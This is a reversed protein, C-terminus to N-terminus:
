KFDPGLTGALGAADIAKQLDSFQPNAKIAPLPALTHLPPADPDPHAHAAPRGFRRGGRGGEGNYVTDAVTQGPEVMRAAGPSPAVGGPAEAFYFPSPSPAAAEEYRREVLAQLLPTPSPAAQALRRTPMTPTTPTTPTTAPQQAGQAPTPKIPLGSAPGLFGAPPPPPPPTHPLTPPHNQVAHLDLRAPRPVMGGM